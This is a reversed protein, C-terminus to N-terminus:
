QLRKVWSRPLVPERLLGSTGCACVASHVVTRAGGWLRSLSQLLEGLGPRPQPGAFRVGTERSGAWCIRGSLREATSNAGLLRLTLPDGIRAGLSAGIRAGNPGVDLLRTVRAVADTRVEVFLDSGLRRQLRKPASLAGEVAGILQPPFALWAGTAHNAARLQAFVSGEAFCEQQSGSFELGLLVRGDDPLDLRSLPFYLVLRGGARHFHRKVQAADDFQYRM